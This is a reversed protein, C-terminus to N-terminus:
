AYFVLSCHKIFIPVPDPPSSNSAYLVVSNDEKSNFSPYLVRNVKVLVAEFSFSFSSSLKEKSEEDFSILEDDCCPMELLAEECCSTTESIISVSRLEGLCRHLKVTTHSSVILYFLTFLILLPKRM